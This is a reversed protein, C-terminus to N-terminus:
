TWLREGWQTITLLCAVVDGIDHYHVEPLEIRGDSYATVQVTGATLKCYKWSGMDNIIGIDPTTMKM